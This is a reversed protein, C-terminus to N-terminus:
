NISPTPSTFDSSRQDFWKLLMVYEKSEKHSISFQLSSLEFGVLLRLDRVIHWTWSTPDGTPSSNTIWCISDPLRTSLHLLWVHWIGRVQSSSWGNTTRAVSKTQSKWWSNHWLVACNQNKWMSSRNGGAQVIDFSWIILLVVLVFEQLMQCLVLSPYDLDCWWSGFDLSYPFYNGASFIVECFM